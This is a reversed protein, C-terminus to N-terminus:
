LNMSSAIAHRCWLRQHFVSWPLLEASRPTAANEATLVEFASKAASEYNSRYVKGSGNRARSQSCWVTLISGESLRGAPQQKRTKRRAAIDPSAFDVSDLTRANSGTQITNAMVAETCSGSTAFVRTKRDKRGPMSPCTTSSCLCLFTHLLRQVAQLHSITVPTHTKLPPSIIRTRATQELSL